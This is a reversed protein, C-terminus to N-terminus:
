DPSPFDTSGPASENVPPPPYNNEFNSKDNTSAPKINDTITSENITSPYDKTPLLLLKKKKKRKILFVILIIIGSIFIVAGIVILAISLSSLRTTIDIGCDIGKFSPCSMILYRQTIKPKKFFYSFYNSYCKSCDHYDFNVQTKTLTVYSDKIPEIFTEGYYMFDENFHGNHVYIDLIVEEFVNFENTDLYVCYNNNNFAHGSNETEKGIIKCKKDERSFNFLVSIFLFILRM